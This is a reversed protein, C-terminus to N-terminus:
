ANDSDEKKDQLKILAQSVVGTVAMVIFTSVTVTLLIPLIFERCADFKEILGVTPGVFMIPMLTLLLDGVAKVQSVKLVGCLLLLFMIVLGYISGPIPLPIIHALIEGVLSVATIVTIQSLYKM